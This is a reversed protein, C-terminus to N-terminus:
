NLEEEDDDEEDDDEEDDDNANNKQLTPAILQSKILPAIPNMLVKPNLKLNEDDDDDDLYQDLTERDIEDSSYKHKNPKVRLKCVEISLSFGQSSIVLTGFKVEGGILSM